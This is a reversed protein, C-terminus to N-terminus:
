SSEGLKLYRECVARIVDQDDIEEFCSEGDEDETELLVLFESETDSLKDFLSYTNGDDMEIRDVFSLTIINGDEDEFELEEGRQEEDMEQEKRAKAAESDLYSQLIYTAAVKDINQKRKDRRVNGEILISEAQMTTMREDYFTVEFGAQELQDTFERVKEAQFGESGDMNRPLGSLIRNTQYQDAISRIHRVDPKYGVRTYTEVPQATLGLPDSVAIGIRRDGIDLAIIREKDM